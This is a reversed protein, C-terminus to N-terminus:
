EGYLYEHDADEFVGINIHLKFESVNILNNLFHNLLQEFYLIAVKNCEETMKMRIIGRYHLRIQAATNRVYSIM